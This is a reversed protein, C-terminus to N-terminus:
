PTRVWLDSGKVRDRLAHDALRDARTLSATDHSLPADEVSWVVRTAGDREFGAVVGPATLHEPEYVSDGVNFPERRIAVRGYYGTVSFSGLLPLESLLVHRESAPLTPALRQVARDIDALTHCVTWTVAPQPADPTRVDIAFTSPV